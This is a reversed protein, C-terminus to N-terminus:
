KQFETFISDKALLTKSHINMLYSLLGVDCIFVKFLYEEFQRKM